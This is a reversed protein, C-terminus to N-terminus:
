WVFRVALEAQQRNLATLIRGFSDSLANEVWGAATGPPLLSDIGLVNFVQAILELKREGGLRITKSVRADLSNLQNDDIQNESIPARGNAARWANVLSLDLNRNGQNRSTGPVYDSVAGDSNLDRGARASFAMTSRVSWVAGLTVDGPLLVAGSAVLAHRRDGRSPGRDLGPNNGDTISTTAALGGFPLNDGSKALTYSVLYQHRNAFRKDLRVFLARYKAEGIPRFQDIRGWQPLPRRRTIPDPTNIDIAINEDNIRTYVADVHFALDAMLEQSFGLNFGHAQPNRIANDVITINPPATSVFRLPDQGQYPDPYSPRGIIVRNTRLNQREGAYASWLYRYYLGYGGRLLSRGDNHLDWAFGARPQVNNHDGRSKPDIFPILRPFQAPDLDQNFAGYQLDYRLGLNLTLNSRPRWEDHVYVQFWNNPLDQFTPPFSATFQIPDRLNAITSPDKPNFPQDTAFTWTGLPNGLSDDTDPGRVSAVGFKLAHSGQWDATISFDNRFEWWWEKQVRGASSGWSLSPFNYVPTILRLREPPFEGVKTWVRQGPPSLLFVFPAYQFRFDNLMRPSLVWTHGVVLSHRRQEVTNLSFASINGGCGECTNHDREYGWRAFLTQQPTLQEDMRSFFMRRFKSNPFTGEVSSYFQPKGTNVTFPEETETLDAAVFFHMRNKAIPGGLSAGYQNRRFPPKPVGFKDHREKEFKNLTNLRKDRVYEFAEGSFLNTGGKTVITVVGGTTGGFDATAQSVNVRFERIAGQPFDQRPEGAIVEQNSVGDVLYASSFFTGGSGVNTNVKRPRTADLSTGPLLLALELTQRSNIPLMEIQRQTVVGTVETRTVEVVPAEGTVTVTEQLTQITMKFNQRLDLGITLTLGKVEVIAFGPLEATVDYRGPPLAAVRYRGDAESVTTRTMGTEVNRVTLTAGPLVGGQEDTITGGIVGSTQAEVPMALGLACLLLVGIRFVERGALANFM